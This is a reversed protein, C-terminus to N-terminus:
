PHYIVHRYEKVQILHEAYTKSFHHGGKGTAVYYLYNTTAPHLAAFISSQSPICIPTPPLGKMLYTNYPTKAALEAKTLEGGFIKDVGYQVSSDIQLRMNKNLRNLIVSAILPKEAIVSTEKEILSAVILAQYATQYPLHPARNKWDIQVTTQMKQYATKLVSIDTNGWTFFYTDPYFLGEIHNQSANLTRLIAKNTQGAITQNLNPDAMMAERIQDFTWGNVITIRHKVLDSGKIMHRLLNWATMPHQIQYEGYRLAYRNGTLIILWSFLTPHQILKQAYLNQSVIRASQAPYVKISTTIGRQVIPKTFISHLASAFYLFIFIALIFLVPFIKKFM